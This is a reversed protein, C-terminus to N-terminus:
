PYFLYEGLITNDNGYINVPVGQALPRYFHGSLKSAELEAVKPKLYKELGEVHVVITDVALLFSRTGPVRTVTAPNLLFHSFPCVVFRSITDIGCLQGHDIYFCYSACTM